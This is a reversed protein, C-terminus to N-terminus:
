SNNREYKDESKLYNTLRGAVRKIMVPPVSMGCIYAINDLNNTLFNFDQPFTSISIIDKKTLYSKTDWRINNCHATITPAVQNNQYSRQAVINYGLFGQNRLQYKQNM